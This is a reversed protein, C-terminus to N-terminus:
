AGETADAASLVSLAEKLVDPARKELAPISRVYDGVSVELSAGAAASVAAGEERKPPQPVAQILVGRAGYGELEARIANIEKVSSSEVKVRVFNGEFMLPLEIPDIDTMRDIDLFEPLRSKQWSVEDDSVLLFGARTGIDSWTHHALAGISWVDSAYTSSGDSDHYVRRHNHYHGAFVRKFGLEALWEPSLGHLPLGDIVGDIPAHLILDLEGRLDESYRNAWALLADKLIEVSEYWPVMVAAPGGELSIDTPENIVRVYGCELATVASGLRTADKGELDHNGALVIFRSDYEKWCYDLEDKVANLVTPSVSGRVHFIDGALVVYKGGASCTQKACRRLEYLLGALRSNRGDANASAFASWQHFHLDAALGYVM